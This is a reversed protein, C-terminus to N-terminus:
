PVAVPPLPSCYSISMHGITTREIARKTKVEERSRTKRGESNGEEVVREFAFAFSLEEVQTAVVKVEKYQFTEAKLMHAVAERIGELITPVINVHPPSVPFPTLTM